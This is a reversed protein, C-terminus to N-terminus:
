PVAALGDIHAIRRAAPGLSLSHHVLCRDPYDLCQLVDLRAKGEHEGPDIRVIAAFEDVLLKQAGTLALLDGEGAGVTADQFRDGELALRTQAPAWSSARHPEYVAEGEIAVLSALRDLQHDLTNERDGM